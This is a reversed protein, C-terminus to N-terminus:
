GLIIWGGGNGLYKYVAPVRSYLLLKGVREGVMVRTM